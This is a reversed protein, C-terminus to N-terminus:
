ESDPDSGIVLRAVTRDGDRELTYHGRLQRALATALRLGLSTSQEASFGAPPGAGDDAVCVVVMTGERAVSVALHGARDPFGHELANAATEAVVVSAPIALNPPLAIAADGEVNLTVDDRGHATVTEACVKGVLDLLATAEGDPRYLDRQMTGILAVRRAAEGIAQAADGALGRKQLALMSGVMQLNNGVRHQLEQFLVARTEALDRSIQREALARLQARQMLHILLIDVAVVFVYLGLAMAVGGTLAFGPPPIFYYWSFAFGLVASLVGPRVGFIFASLVVAPFFTVYPFGPPLVRDLTMRVAFAILTIVAAAAMGLAPRRQALPLRTLWSETRGDVYTGLLLFPAGRM